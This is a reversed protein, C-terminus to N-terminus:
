SRTRRQSRDQPVSFSNGRGFHGYDKRTFGPAGELFDAGIDCLVLRYRSGARGHFQDRGIVSKLLEGFPSPRPRSQVGAFQRGNPRIHDEVPDPSQVYENKRDTVARALAATSPLPSARFRCIEGRIWRPRGGLGSQATPLQYRPGILPDGPATSGDSPVNSSAAYSLM